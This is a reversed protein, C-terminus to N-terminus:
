LLGTINGDCRPASYAMTHVIAYEVAKVVASIIVSTEENKDRNDKRDRGNKDGDYPRAVIEIM